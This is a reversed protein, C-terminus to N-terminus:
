LLLSFEIVGVDAPDSGTDGDILLRISASMGDAVRCSVGAM